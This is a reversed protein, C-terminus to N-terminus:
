KIRLIEVTNDTKNMATTSSGNGWASGAFSSATSQLRSLTMDPLGDLSLVRLEGVGMDGIAKEFFQKLFGRKRESSYKRTPQKQTIEGFTEGTPLVIMFELQRTDKLATLLALTRQFNLSETIAM